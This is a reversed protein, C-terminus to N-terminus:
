VGAQLRELAARDLPDLAGGAAECARYAAVGEAERDLYHALIRGALCDLTAAHGTRSRGPALAELATAHRGRTMLLRALNARLADDEPHRALARRYLVEAEELEQLQHLTLGLDREASPHEPQAALTERIAAALARQEDRRARRWALEDRLDPAEPHADVVQELLAIADRTRGLASLSDVRFRELAPLSGFEARLADARRLAAEPTAYQAELNLFDFLAVRDKPDVDRGADLESAVDASYGLAELQQRAGADVELLAQAPPWQWQQAAFLADAVPADADRYLNRRQQPDRAVDYRERRPLDFWIEGAETLLGFIPATGYHLAPAVCELPHARAPVPEGRLSRLLSRGSGALPELQALELLTPALDILSAPGDVVGGRLLGRDLDHGTWFLLPIRLTSDYAFYAHTGEGHEGLGEGHDSTLAVISHKWRGAVQLAELLRGTQADAFAIEARYPDFRSAWPEPAHWTRHPDFLHVWLFVARADSVQELWRLAANVTDDGRRSGIRQQGTPSSEAMADDYVDFGRALGYERGLVAASVFAATAYGGARFREALTPVDESLRFLGNDRAGHQSPFLGTLLSAHAPLTIPATTRAERFSVGERALADWRPTASPAGDAAEGPRAEPPGVHDARVTDWTILVVDPPRGADSCAAIWLSCVALGARVGGWM